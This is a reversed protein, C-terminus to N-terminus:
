VTSTNSLHNGSCHPSFLGILPCPISAPSPYPPDSSPRTSRAEDRRLVEGSRRSVDDDHKGLLTANISRDTGDHCATAVLVLVCEAVANRGAAKAGELVNATQM